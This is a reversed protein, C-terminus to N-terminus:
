RILHFLREFRTRGLTSLNGHARGPQGGARQDASPAAHSWYVLLARGRVQDIPLFGWYRSDRSNDRNDGMVFLQGAPVVRPGWDERISERRLGLALDGPHAPPPDSFRAYPEDLVRGDITVQKGRVEVTEGPLGVVRKIFDRSPDEPFKFVVVHGREIRRKGLLAEEFAGLSPSYVVKNVLLQDGVLLNDEMSGTPIKFAQVVFTRIFLALAIAVVLAEFYERVVSKRPAAPATPAGQGPEVAVNM